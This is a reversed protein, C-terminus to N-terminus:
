QKQFKIFYSHDQVKIEGVYLGSPVQYTNISLDSISLDFSQGLQNFVTIADPPTNSFPWDIFLTESVPNPYCHLFQQMTEDVPTPAGDLCDVNSLNILAIDDDEYCRFFHDNGDAPSTLWQEWFGHEPGFKDYIYLEQNATLDNYSM